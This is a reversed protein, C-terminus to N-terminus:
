FGTSGRFQLYILFNAKMGQYHRFYLTEVDKFILGEQALM